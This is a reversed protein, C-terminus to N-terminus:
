QTLVEEMRKAVVRSVGAKNMSVGYLVDAAEMTRKQHTVIMVQAHEELERILTLFRQLNVDDLAAEVEDLLYFPSPRARFIAFLFALAVLSREGGSLLSLKRVNKGPPRAEIEIGSSLLDNPDTLKLHGSGGPFLRRFVGEFERAVADYAEGFVQLITDDVERVVRMLDRRSSKLDEIQGVLFTERESLEGFEESANPNVPGLRKMERELKESRARAEPEDGTTYTELTTLDELRFGWDDLSREEISDLRARTEARVVEAESRKRTVEELAAGLERERRRLEALQREGAEARDRAASATSEARDTWREGRAAAEEALFAVQEVAERQHRLSARLDELGALAAEADGIGSEAEEARVRASLVKEHASRAEMAADTAIAASEHERARAAILAGESSERRGKADELAARRAPLAAREEAATREAAALSEQSRALEEDLAALEIEHQEHKRRMGALREAAGATLADLRRLEDDHAAVRRWAAEYKDESKSVVDQAEREGALALHARERADDILPRLRSLVGHDESFLGRVEEFAELRAVAAARDAHSVGLREKVREAEERAGDLLVEARAAQETKADLDGELLEVEREAKRVDEGAGALSDEAVQRRERVAHVRAEIAGVTARGAAEAGEARVLAQAAATEAARARGLREEAAERESRLATAEAATRESAARLDGSGRELHDQESLWRSRESELLRIRERYGEETEAALRAAIKEARESAIRRLGALRDAARAMRHAEGRAREAAEVLSRREEAASGLRARVNELEDNLLAARHAEAEPDVRSGKSRLRAVETAALRQRITRQEELLESYAAAANAQRKLPRIARRLELLVDNLRVLNDDVREIKKISRDKRRRFKGIQAAEEIFGRRDEPRAQLVADLQGQGVVTHLSRGIGTDSLLEAVDLLRCPAGNIKYESQGARDTIRSVTVENLDLPLVRPSNDLTLEVEALGLRARSDSGAFIVDEMSAGRLTSPAQSGLVWTLADSINSKGSGNPGVIVNVGPEFELITPDAFSKFGALKLARVYM